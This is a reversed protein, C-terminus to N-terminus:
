LLSRTDALRVRHFSRSVFLRIQQPLKGPTDLARRLFLRTEDLQVPLYKEVATQNFYQHFCRRHARWKPGYPMFVFNFDWSM